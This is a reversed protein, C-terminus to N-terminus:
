DGGGWVPLPNWAVVRRVGGSRREAGRIYLLISENLIIYAGDDGDAGMM